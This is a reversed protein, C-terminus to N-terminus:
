SREEGAARYAVIRVSLTVAEEDRRPLLEFQKVVMPRLEEEVQYLWRHVAFYSGSVEVAYPLEEFMLVTNAEDPTIGLLDVGHLSSIRDLTNVVFSEIQERPVGASDGYLERNLREIETELVTISAAGSANEEVLSAKAIEHKEQMESYHAFAPKIGFQLGFFGGLVLLLLFGAPVARPDLERLFQDLATPIM